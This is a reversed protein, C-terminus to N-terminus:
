AIPGVLNAQGVRQQRIAESRDLLTSAIPAVSVLNKGLGLVDTRGLNRINVNQVLDTESLEEIQDSRTPDFTHLM